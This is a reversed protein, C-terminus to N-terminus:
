CGAPVDLLGRLVPSLARCALRAWRNYTVDRICRTHSRVRDGRPQGRPPSRGAASRQRETRQGARRCTRLEHPCYQPRFPKALIARPTLECCISAPSQQAASTVHCSSRTRAYPPLPLSSPGSRAGRTHGPIAGSNHPVPSLVLATASGAFWATVASIAHPARARRTRGCSTSSPLSTPDMNPSRRGSSSTSPKSRRTLARMRPLAVAAASPPARTATAPAPALSAAAAAAQTSEILLGSAGTPAWKCLPKRSKQGSDLPSHRQVGYRIPTLSPAPTHGARSQGSTTFSQSWSCTAM